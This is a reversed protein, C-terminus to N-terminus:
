RGYTSLLYNVINKAADEEALKAKRVAAVRVNYNPDQRDEVVLKLVKHLEEINHVNYFTDYVRKATKPPIIKDKSCILRIVPRLTSGYEPLFSGSDTIMVRSDLFLDQYDADVSVVAIRAWREYYDAIEDETMLGSTKLKQKLVPHPKFVWKVERHSEAYELIERGNWDFTGICYRDWRSAAPFSFHPAYIVYGTAPPREREYHFKDLAPHGAVIFRSAYSVCWLSRRYRWAWSKALCFYVWSMRSVESHCDIQTIGFDPVYYPLFCTLAYRSVDYPHQKSCPSWQETYFVIDPNFESLSHYIWHGNDITVTRVYRDGIRRFFKEAKAQVEEYEKASLMEASQNNWASIGVMPFFDESEDMLKYLSQEKWKAIESVIFLVRIKECKPKHKALKCLRRYRWACVWVKLSQRNEFFLRFLFLSLGIKKLFSRLILLFGRDWNM